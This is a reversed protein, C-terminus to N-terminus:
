YYSCCDTLFNRGKDKQTNLILQLAVKFTANRNIRQISEPFIIEDIKKTM